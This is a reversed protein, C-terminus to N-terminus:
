GAPHGPPFGCTVTTFPSGQSEFRPCVHISGRYCAWWSPSRPDPTTGYRYLRTYYYGLPNSRPNFCGFNIGYNRVYNCSTQAAVMSTGVFAVPLVKADADSHVDADDFQMTPQQEVVAQGKEDLKAIFSKFAQSEGSTTVISLAWKEDNCALFGTEIGKKDFVPIFVAKYGEPFIVGRAASVDLLLERERTTKQLAKFRPDKMIAAVGTTLEDVSFETIGSRVSESQFSRNLPRQAFVTFLMSLTAVTFILFRM